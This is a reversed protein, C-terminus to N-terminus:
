GGGGYVCQGDTGLDANAQRLEDKLHNYAETLPEIVDEYPCDLLRANALAGKLLACAQGMSRATSADSSANLAANLEANAERIMRQPISDCRSDPEQDQMPFPDVSIGIATSPFILFSLVIVLSKM